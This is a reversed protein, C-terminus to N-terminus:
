SIEATFPTRGCTDSLRPGFDNWSNQYYGGGPGDVLGNFTCGTETRNEWGNAFIFQSQATVSPGSLVLASATIAGLPVWLRLTKNRLMIFSEMWWVDSSCVSRSDCP